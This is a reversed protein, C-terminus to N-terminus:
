KLRFTGTYYATSLAFAGGCFPQFCGRWEHYIPSRLIEMPNSQVGYSRRLIETPSRSPEKLNRGIVQERSNQELEEGERAGM